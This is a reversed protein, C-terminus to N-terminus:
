REAKVLMIRRRKRRRVTVATLKVHVKDETTNITAVANMICGKMLIIMTTMTATMQM